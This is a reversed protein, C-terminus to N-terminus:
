SGSEDGLRRTVGLLTAGVGLMLAAIAAVIGTDVGTFPLEEGPDGPTTTVVTPLVEDCAEDLLAEAATDYADGYRPDDADVEVVQNPGVCVWKTPPEVPPTCDADEASAVGDDYSDEGWHVPVVEEGDCVYRTCDPDQAAQESSEYAEDYGDAGPQVEVVQGGECAYRVPDEDCDTDVIFWKSGTSGKVFDPNTMATWELTVEVEGPGVSEPFTLIATATGVGEVRALASQGGGQLTIEYVHLTSLGVNSTLTAEIVGCSKEITLTVECGDTHDATGEQQTIPDGLKIWNSGAPNQGVPLTVVEFSLVRYYYEGQPHSVYSGSGTVNFRSVAQNKQGAVRPADHTGAPNFTIMQEAENVSILSSGTTGVWYEAGPGTGGGYPQNTAYVTKQVKVRVWKQYSTEVPVTECRGSDSSEAAFAALPMLAALVAVITTLGLVRRLRYGSASRGGAGAPTRM